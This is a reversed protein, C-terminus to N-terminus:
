GIFNILIIHNDASLTHTHTHRHRQRHAHTCAHTHSVKIISDESVTLQEELTKIKGEAAIKEHQLKQNNTGEEELRFYPSFM